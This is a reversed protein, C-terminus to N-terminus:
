QKERKKGSLAIAARSTGTVSTVRRSRPSPRGLAPLAVVVTADGPDLWTLGEEEGAPGHRPLALSTGGRGSRRLPVRVLGEEAEGKQEM